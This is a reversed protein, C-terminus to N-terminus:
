LRQDEKNVDSAPLGPRIIVRRVQESTGGEGKLRESFTDCDHTRVLKGDVSLSKIAAFYLKRQNISIYNSPSLSIYKVCASLNM